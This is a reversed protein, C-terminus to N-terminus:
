QVNTHIQTRVHTHTHILSQNHTHTYTTKVDGPAKNPNGTLKAKTWVLVWATETQTERM